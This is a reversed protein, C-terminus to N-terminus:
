DDDTKKRKEWNWVEWIQDVIMDGFGKGEKVDERIERERQVKWEARQGQIQETVPGTAEQREISGGASASDSSRVLPQKGPPIVRQREPASEVIRQTISRGTHQERTLYNASYGTAGILGVTYVDLKRPPTLALLPCLILAGIATNRLLRKQREQPSSPTSTLNPEPQSM